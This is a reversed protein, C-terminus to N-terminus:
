SGLTIQENTGWWSQQNIHYHMGQRFPLRAAVESTIADESRMPIAIVNPFASPPADGETNDDPILLASSAQFTRHGNQDEVNVPAPLNYIPVHIYNNVLADMKVISDLKVLSDIKLLNEVEASFLRILGNLGPPLM